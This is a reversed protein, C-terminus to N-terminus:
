SQLNGPVAAGPSPHPTCRTRSASLKLWTKVQSQEEDAIRRGRRIEAYTILVQERDPARKTLMDRVFQLHKDDPSREAFFNAAVIAAVDESTWDTKGEDFRERVNQCVSVTLFPHGSTWEFIWSLVQRAEEGQLGLGETLPLAEEPTFDTLDVSEGVNFPTRKPDGILEAASAAGILVFSLRGFEPIHARANHMYRIASFFDDANFPLSTTSDIEDFFIVVPRKVENLLVYQFYDTLRHTVALGSWADWWEFVDTSLDLEEEIKTLIGLYWEDTTVHTGIQNLDIIVALIGEEALLKATNVMLSSKGMQQATLVRAFHGSNCLQFLEDDAERTIYIGGGAQVTGGVTYFARERIM